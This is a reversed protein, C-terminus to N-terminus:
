LLNELIRSLSEGIIINDWNANCVEYIFWVIIVILTLTNLIPIFAEVVSLVLSFIEGFTYTKIGANYRGLMYLVIVSLMVITSGAYIYIM